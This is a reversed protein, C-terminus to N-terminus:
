DSVYNIPESYWSEGMTDRIFVSLSDGKEIGDHLPGSLLDGLAVSFSQQEGPEMRKKMHALGLIFHMQIYRAEGEKPQIRFGLVEIFRPAKGRNTVDVSIKREISSPGRGVDFATVWRSSILLPGEAQISVGPQIAVPTRGGLVLSEWDGKYRRVVKENLKRGFGGRLMSDDHCVLCLVALNSEVNNSPDDDIHHIQIPLRPLRCKCCTMDSKFLIEAALDEPIPIRSKNTAM